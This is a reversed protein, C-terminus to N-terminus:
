DFLTRLRNPGIKNELYVLCHPINGHSDVIMSKVTEPVGMARNEKFGLYLKAEQIWDKHLAWSLTQWAEYGIQNLVEPEILKEISPDEPNKDHRFIALGGM